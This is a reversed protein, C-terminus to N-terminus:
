EKRTAFVHFYYSIGESSKFMEAPSNYRTTSRIYYSFSNDKLIKLIEDEYDQHHSMEMEIYINQVKQLLKSSKLVELEAGEIDIKLLDIEGYTKILSDLTISEVIVNGTESVAGDDLGTANFKLDGESSYLAKNILTVNNLNFSNVNKKLYNEFINKDAELSILKSNKYVHNFYILGIGINSGADIIVPNDRLEFRYEDNLFFSRLQVRVMPVWPTIIQAGKFKLKFDRRRGRFSYFQDIFYVEREIKTKYRFIGLLSYIIRFATVSKKCLNM